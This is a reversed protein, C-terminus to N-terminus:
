EEEKIHRSLYIVQVVMFLVLVIPVGPFKFYVWIDDSHNFAVYLNAMGLLTFFGAWGMNLKTWVTDPLSIQKEMALRILNREFFIPALGLAIALVWYFVTVKWKIFTQDQFLLTAGGMVLVILFSVWLMTEVKRHKLWMWCVQFFTAFMVTATALFMAPKSGAHLTIGLALLAEQATVPYFKGVQYAAFFLIIPFLDFLIKM